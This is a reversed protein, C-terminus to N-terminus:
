LQHQRAQEHNQACARRTRRVTKWRRVRHFLYHYGQNAAFIFAAILIVELLLM